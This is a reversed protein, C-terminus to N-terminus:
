WDLKYYELFDDIDVEPIFTCGILAGQMDRSELQRDVIIGVPRTVVGKYVYNDIKDHADKKDRFNQLVLKAARESVTAGNATLVEDDIKKLPCRNSSVWISVRSMSTRWKLVKNNLENLEIEAKRKAETRKYENHQEEIKVRTNDDLYISFYAWKSYGKPLYTTAWKLYKLKVIDKDSFFTKILDTKLVDGLKFELSKTYTTYNYTSWGKYNKYETRYKIIQQLASNFVRKGYLKSYITFDDVKREITCWINRARNNTLKFELYAVRELDNQIDLLIENIVHKVQSYYQTEFPLHKVRLYNNNPISNSIYYDSIGNGYCGITDFKRIFIINNKKLTLQGIRNSYLEGNTVCIHGYYRSEEILGNAWMHIMEGQTKPTKPKPKEKKKM